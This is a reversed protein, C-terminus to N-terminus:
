PPPTHVTVAVSVAPRVIVGGASLSTSKASLTETVEVSASFPSVAVTVIVTVPDFSAGTAISSEALVPSSSGSTREVPVRSAM